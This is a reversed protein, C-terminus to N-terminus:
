KAINKTISTRKIHKNAVKDINIEKSTKEEVKIRM